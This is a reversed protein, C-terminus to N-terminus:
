RSPVAPGFTSPRLQLFSPLVYMNGHSVRVGKPLGTTGSSYNLVATTRKAEEPSLAKWRAGEGQRRVEEESALLASTCDSWDRVGEREGEYRDSFLWVRGRPFGVKECAALATKLLTPEVLLVSAGTNEIQYGTEGVGYGPNM